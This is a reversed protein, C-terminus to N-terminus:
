KDFSRRSRFGGRDGGGSRRGRGAGGSRFKSRSDDGFRGGEPKGFRSGSDGRSESSFKRDFSRAPRAGADGRDKFDSSFKRDFSRAPRFGADGRDRSEFDGRGRSDSSSNRDFSRAPRFDSRGGRSRSSSGSGSKKVFTVAYGINGARGTRGVRHTYDAMSDPEDFNVILKVHPIDIGRSAVDTAVLVDARGNSFAEISKKRANQRLDGHLTVSSIDNKSLFHAIKDALFKQNAFVLTKNGKEAQLIELLKDYKEDIDNVEVASQHVLDSNNSTKLAIKEAETINSYIFSETDKDLTATFFLYQSINESMTLIKKIDNRFGMDLMRDAEDLVVLNIRTPFIAKREIMDMLRGPTGVIIQCGKKLNTMQRHMDSGGIIATSFIKLGKTLKLVENRIQEALERTPAIILVTYNPNELVQNIIPIVFSATKGTGTDAIGIINKKELVLPIAKAQIPTMNTYGNDAINQMLRSDIQLGTFPIMDEPVEPKKVATKTYSAIKDSHSLNSGGRSRNFGGRRGGSSRGGRPSYRSNSENFKNYMVKSHYFVSSLSDDVLRLLANDEIIVCKYHLNVNTHIFFSYVLAIM